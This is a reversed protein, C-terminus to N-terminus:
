RAGTSGFGGHGRATEPLTTVFEPQMMLVPVVVAQAFRELPEIKVAPEKTGNRMWVSAMIEGRFDQDILGVLNGLVIGRKHGAGSRPLLLMAWGDPLAVSFGCPILVPEGNRCITVPKEICARLDFAAAGETERRFHEPGLRPDRIQIKM